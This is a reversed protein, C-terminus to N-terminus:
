LADTLSQFKDSKDSPTIQYSYLFKAKFNYIKICM